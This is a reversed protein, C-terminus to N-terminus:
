KEGGRFMCHVPDIGVSMHQMLKKPLSNKGWESRVRNIPFTASPSRPSAPIRDYQNNWRLLLRHRFDDCLASRDALRRDTWVLAAIVDSFTLDWAVARGIQRPGATHYWQPFITFNIKRVSRGVQLAGLSGLAYLFLSASDPLAPLIKPIVEVAETSGTWRNNKERLPFIGPLFQDLNHHTAFEVADPLRASRPEIASNMDARACATGVFFIAFIIECCPRNM